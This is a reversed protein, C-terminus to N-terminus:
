VRSDHEGGFREALSARLRAKGRHVLTWLHTESVGLIECVQRGSLGDIERLVLAERMTDPLEELAMRVARRMEKDDPSHTWPDQRTAFQGNRFSGDDAYVTAGGGGSADRRRAALLNLVKYRLVGILWTRESSRGGFSARSRWASALAEQVAEEALDASPLRLRAYAFM